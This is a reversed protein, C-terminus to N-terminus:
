SMGIYVKAPTALAAASTYQVAFYTGAPFDALATTLDFSNETQGATITVTVATAALAAITAGSFLTFTMDAAAVAGIEAAIRHAIRRGGATSTFQTTVAAAAAGAPNNPSLFENNNATAAGYQFSLVPGDLVTFGGNALSGANARWSALSACDIQLTGPAGATFDLAVANQFNCNQLRNFPAAGDMNIGLQISADQAAFGAGSAEGEFSGGYVLLQAPIGQIGGICRSNRSVVQGVNGSAGALTFSCNEVVFVHQGPPPSFDLDPLLPVNDLGFAFWDNPIAGLGSILCGPSIVSIPGEALYNGVTVYYAKANALAATTMSVFPSEINGNPTTPAPATNDVYSVATLNRFVPVAGVDWEKTTNNWVPIQGSATGEFFTGSPSRRIPQHDPM